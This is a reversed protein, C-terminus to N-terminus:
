RPVEEKDTVNKTKKMWRIMKKEELLVISKREKENMKMGPVFRSVSKEGMKTACNKSVWCDFSCTFYSCWVQHVTQHFEFYLLESFSQRASGCEDSCMNTKASSWM